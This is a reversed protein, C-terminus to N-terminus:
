SKDVNAIRGLLLEFENLAPLLANQFTVADGARDRPVVQVLGRTMSSVKWMYQAILACSCM